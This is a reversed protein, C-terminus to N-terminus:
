RDREREALWEEVTRRPMGLMYAIYEELRAGMSEMWGDLLAVGDCDLMIRIDARMHDSWGADADVDNLFPDRIEYGAHLLSAAASAFAPRNLKPRGTIPGAVYLRM